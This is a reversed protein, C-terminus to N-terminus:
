QLFLAVCDMKGCMKCSLACNNRVYEDRCWKKARYGECEADDLVNSCGDGDGSGGAAPPFLFISVNFMLKSALLETLLLLLLLLEGEKNCTARKSEDGKAAVRFRNETMVRRNDSHATGLAM